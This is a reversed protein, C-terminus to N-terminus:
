QTGFLLALSCHESVQSICFFDLSFTIFFLHSLFLIFFFFGSMCGPADVMVHFSVSSISWHFSLSGQLGCTSPGAELSM